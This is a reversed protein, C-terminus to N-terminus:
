MGIHSPIKNIYPDKKSGPLNRSVKMCFFNNSYVVVAVICSNICLPCGPIEGQIEKKKGGSNGEKGGLINSM